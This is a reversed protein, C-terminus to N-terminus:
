QRNYICHIEVNLSGDLRSKKIRLDTSDHSKGFAALTDLHNSIHALNRRITMQGRDAIGKRHM